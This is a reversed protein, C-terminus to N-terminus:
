LWNGLRSAALTVIHGIFNSTMWVSIKDTFNILAKYVLYVCLVM